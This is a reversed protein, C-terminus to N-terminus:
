LEGRKGISPEAVSREVNDGIIAEVAENLKKGKAKTVVRVEAALKEKTIKICGMFQDLSGGVSSFNEFVKQANIINSMNRGPTLEYGPISDPDAKLLRKMEAKTTDIWKEVIAAREMFLVRQVPTWKSVPVLMLSAPSNAVEGSVFKTYEPCNGKAKCFKCQVEGAVRPSDPQNSKFVRAFMEDRARVIQERNYVCIEPSHTVLPQIVVTAVEALMQNNFDYLVAQDRLQMNRPSDPVDGPLAKYEIVLAKLKHRYAADIQGSHKMGNSWQIWFRKERDPFRALDKIEPGFFKEVIKDEIAKCSEYIDEEQPSLGEGNGKALADHVRTGFMSDSSREDPLGYQALHRGPCLADAQANSASTFDGRQQPNILPIPEM